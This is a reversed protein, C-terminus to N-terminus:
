RFEEEVAALLLRGRQPAFQSDLTTYIKYPFPQDAPDQQEMSPGLLNPAGIVIHEDPQGANVRVYRTADHFQRAAATEHNKM